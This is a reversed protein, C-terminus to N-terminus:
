KDRVRHAWRIALATKGIGATGAIASIVVASDTHGDSLLRDLRELDGRRGTFQPPAPPPQAIPEDDATDPVQEAGGPANLEPDERLVAEYLRRLPAGPDVGLEDSLRRALDHFAALAEAQRGGRYLAIMLQGAFRERLPHEAVLGRLESVLRAHTGAALELDVVEELAALRREELKAGDVEPLQGGLGALVPGRWLGLAERLTAAAALGDGAAVEARARQVLEEFISADLADPDVRLLYGSGHTAIADAAGVRALVGRLAAVANQVQRRATAPAVGDWVAETLHSLGVPKNPALLLAALVRRQRSGGLNLSREGARVELPGLVPYHIGPAVKGSPHDSAPMAPSAYSGWSM